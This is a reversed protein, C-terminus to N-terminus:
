FFSPQVGGGGQFRLAKLIAEPARPLGNECLYYEWLDVRYRTYGTDSIEKWEPQLVPQFAGGSAGFAYTKYEQADCRMGEYVVNRAGGSSEIVLTYRVVSDNEGLSLSSSDVFYSFRSGERDVDFEVLNGGEPYPPLEVGDEKWPVEVVKDRAKDTQPRAEDVFPREREAQVTTVAALLPVLLFVAKSFSRKM